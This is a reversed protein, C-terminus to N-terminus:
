ARAAAAARAGPLVMGWRLVACRMACGMARYGSRTGCMAYCLLLMVSQLVACHVARAVIGYGVTTSSM